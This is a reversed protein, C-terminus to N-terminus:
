DGVSGRTRALTQGASVLFWRQGDEDVFLPQEDGENELRFGFQSALWRKELVTFQERAALGHKELVAQAEFIALLLARNAPEALFFDFAYRALLFLLLFLLVILILFGLLALANLWGPIQSAESSLTVWGLRSAQAGTLLLFLTVALGLGLYLGRWLAGQQHARAVRQLRELDRYNYGRVDAYPRRASILLLAALRRSAGGSRRGASWGLYGIWVLVILVLPIALLFVVGLLTQRTASVGAPQSAYTAVVVFLAWVPSAFMLGAMLMRFERAAAHYEQVVQQYTGEYGAAVRHAM